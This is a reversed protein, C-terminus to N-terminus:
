PEVIFATSAVFSGLEDYMDIVYRGPLHYGSIHTEFFDGVVDVDILDAVDWDPDFVVMSSQGDYSGGTSDTLM